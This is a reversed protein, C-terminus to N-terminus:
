QVCTKDKFQFQKRVSESMSALQDESIVIEKVCGNHSCIYALDAATIDATPVFLFTHAWIACKFTTFWNM